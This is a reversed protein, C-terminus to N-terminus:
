FPWPRCPWMCVPLVGTWMWVQAHMPVHVGVVGAVPRVRAALPLAAIFWCPEQVEWSSIVSLGCGARECNPFASAGLYTCRQAAM